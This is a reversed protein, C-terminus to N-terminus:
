NVMSLIKIKQEVLKQVKEIAVPFIKRLDIEDSDALVTKLSKMFQDKTDTAINVKTIGNLIAERLMQEPIGSAGHLVLFVDTLSRIKNLRDFDLKPEGRYFGHKSGIAIALSTVGTIEVFKKADSPDTFQDSEVLSDPKPVYGLEAEVNIEYKKALEAVTKTITINEDFPKDSADIMVSDFGQDLCAKILEVDGCHDLHLWSEVGEDQSVSRAINKATNLGMYKISAPTLQLIVSQNLSGAAQIIGRCTEYNYFNAALIARKENQLEEFKKVLKL